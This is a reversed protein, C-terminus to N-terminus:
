AAKMEVTWAAVHRLNVKTVGHKTIIELERDSRSEIYGTVCSYTTQQNEHLNTLGGWKIRIEMM